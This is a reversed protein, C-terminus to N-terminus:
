QLFWIPDIWNDLLINLDKDIAQKEYRYYWYGTTAQTLYGFDYSTLSRGWGSSLEYPYRYQAERKRMAELYLPTIARARNFLEQAKQEGQEDEGLEFLRRLCAGHYLLYAHEARYQNVRFSDALESYWLYSEQPVLSAVADVRALLDLYVQSMTELGPVLNELLIDIHEANMSYLEAFTVPQPHTETGALYGIEDWSDQGALYSALNYGILMEEQNQTLENIAAFLPGAAEGFIATFDALPDTWDQSSDWLFRSIAWDTLWYGWEHGSTFTVHGDLGWDALYDIDKWRNFLYLPLFLPVDIDFSCWYASEPYYYVKREGIREKTWKVLDDFDENGYVPAPGQLDYYQVTHPYVGMGPDAVQALYNFDIDGYSPAVQDSSCHVKVSADTKPYKERLYAVTNNMWAVQITDAVKTFESSGMEFHLHDWPVQMLQDIGAEMEDRCERKFDPVIRWAKQQMFVWSGVLGLNMGRSHGYDVWARFHPVTADYDVTRLLEFQMYNQKNRVQWDILHKAYELYGPEDRMLFETAELPHMTHIHFGRRDWDPAQYTELGVIRDIRASPPFYTEEPHFFQVGYQEILEYLGYQTGRADPGFVVVLSSGDLEVSRLRFSEAAMRGLEEASFVREAIEQDGIVVNLTNQSEDIESDLSVKDGFVENLLALADQAALKVVPQADDPLVLRLRDFDGQADTADDDDDGGGNCTLAILPLMVLWILYFNKGM